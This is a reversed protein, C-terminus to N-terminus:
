PVTVTTRVLTDGRTGNEHIVFLNYTGPPETLTATYKLARIEATCSTLRETFSVHLGLTNGSADVRGDVAFRCLSGYRTNQVDITGDGATVSPLAFMIGPNTPYDQLDMRLVGNARTESHVSAPDLPTDRATMAGSCACCFAVALLAIRKM